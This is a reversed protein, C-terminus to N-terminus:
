KGKIIGPVKGPYAKYVRVGVVFGALLGATVWTWTPIGDGFLSAREEAGLGYLRGVANLLLPSGQTAAKALESYDLGPM